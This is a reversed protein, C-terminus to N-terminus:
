GVLYGGDVPLVVGTVFRAAESCLFLVPGAVDEPEGWRGLPTRELIPRSRVPDAAVPETLPTRIWGPAVANVRIGEAAYAVALAKTLQAIAGKSAGYGPAHGSGFFTYMSATNVIAGRSAALLPRCAACLRMTGTLNVDIVHAFVDPDHEEQRRIVGACNVLANLRGLQSLYAAIAEADTVDLPAADLGRGRADAAERDTRGTVRVRAGAAQFATAIGAGIGSTGGVVLIEKTAFEGSM